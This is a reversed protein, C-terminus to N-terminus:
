TGWFVGTELIHDRMIDYVGHLDIVDIFYPIKLADIDKCIKVLLVPDIEEGIDVAIDIDTRGMVAGVGRSGFLYIKGDPIHKHIVTVLDGKYLRIEDYGPMIRQRM